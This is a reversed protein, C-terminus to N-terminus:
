DCKEQRMIMEGCRTPWLTSCNNAVAALRSARIPSAGNIPRADKLGNGAPGPGREPSFPRAAGRRLGPERSSAHRGWPRADGAPGPHRLDPRSNACWGVASPPGPFVGGGFYVSKIVTM